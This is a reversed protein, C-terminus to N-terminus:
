PKKMWVKLFVLQFYTNKSLNIIQIKAHLIASKFTIIHWALWTWVHKFMHLLYLMVKWKLPRTWSQQMVAPMSILHQPWQGTERWSRWCLNNYPIWVNENQKFCLYQVNCLMTDCWYCHSLTVKSFCFHKKKGENQPGGKMKESLFKEKWKRMYDKVGMNWKLKSM